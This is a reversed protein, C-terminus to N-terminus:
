NPRGWRGDGYNRKHKDSTVEGAPGYGANTLMRRLNVVMQEDIDKHYPFPASLIETEPGVTVKFKGNYENEVQGVATLLSVVQRWEINSSSPHAFIKDLTNRHRNNLHEPM